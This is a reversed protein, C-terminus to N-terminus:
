VYGTRTRWVEVHFPAAPSQRLQWWRALVRQTLPGLDAAPISAPDLFAAELIGEDHQPVPEDARDALVGLYFAGLVVTGTHLRYSAYTCVLAEVTVALGTEEAVERIATQELSEGPEQGGGPVEWRVGTKRPQRVLLLRDGRLVM